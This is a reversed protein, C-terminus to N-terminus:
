GVQLRDFVADSVAQEDIALYHKRMTAPNCGFAIAADDCGIGAMRARSMATGRLNHLKFRKAKTKKFYTKTNEQLWYRLQRPSYDKVRAAIRPSGRDIHIQRLQESFREFAYTPGAVAKLEAFLHAPLKPARQKRGKTTEAVFIVRGDKLNASPLEALESIRCGIAAKIDLFLLPMRWGHWRKRLWALFKEQEETEILRPAPKDLKPLAVDSFPDIDLIKCTDRWWRGYVISLNTLNGAVTRESKGQEVRRIKFEEAMAPMIEHPGKTEPFMKRLNRVAVKYQDITDPRLNDAVMHRAMAEIARDWTPPEEPASKPSYINRIIAIASEQAKRQNTAKTSRELRNGKPGKFNCYWFPDRDRHKLAFLIRRGDALEAIFSM